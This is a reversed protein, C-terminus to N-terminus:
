LRPFSPNADLGAPMDLQRVFPSFYGDRGRISSVSGFIPGVVPMGLFQQYTMTTSVTNGSRSFSVNTAHYSMTFKRISRLRFSTRDFSRAVIVDNDALGPLDELQLIFVAGLGIVGADNSLIPLQNAVFAARAQQFTPSGSFIDITYDGPAVPTMVAAAVVRAKERALGNGVGGRGNAAEGAWVSAARSAQFVAVNALIGAMNLVSLQILGFVLLLLVPMVILTETMVNGAPRSLVMPGRKKISTIKRFTLYILAWISVSLGFLAAFEFVSYGLFQANFLYGSVLRTHQPELIALAVLCGVVGSGITHIAARSLHKSLQHM